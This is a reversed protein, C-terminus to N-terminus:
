NYICIRGSSDECIYKRNSIANVGLVLLNSASQVAERGTIRVPTDDIRFLGDNTSVIFYEDSSLVAGTAVIEIRTHEDGSCLVAAKSGCILARDGGMAFGGLDGIQYIEGAIKVNEDKRLVIYDAITCVYEWSPDNMPSRSVALRDSFVVSYIFGGHTAIPAVVDNELQVDMPFESLEGRSSYIIAINDAHALGAFYIINDLEFITVRDVDLSYPLLESCIEELSYDANIGYMGIRSERFAISIGGMSRWKCGTLLHKIDQHKLEMKGLMCEKM